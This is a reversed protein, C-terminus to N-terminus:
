LDCSRDCCTHGGTPGYAIIYVRVLHSTTSELASIRDCRFHSQSRKEEGNICRRDCKTSARM